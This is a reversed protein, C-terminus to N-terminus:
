PVAVAKYLGQMRGPGHESRHPVLYGFALMRMSNSSRSSICFFRVKTHAARRDMLQPRLWAFRNSAASAPRLVRRREHMTYLRVRGARVNIKLRYGDHKVEHM